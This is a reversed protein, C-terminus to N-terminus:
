NKLVNVSGFEGQTRMWEQARESEDRRQAKTRCRNTPIHSSTRRERTCVLRDDSALANNASPALALSKVNLTIEQLPPQEGATVQAQQPPEVISYNSGCASIVMGFLLVVFGSAQRM